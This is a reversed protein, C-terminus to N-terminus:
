RYSTTVFRPVARRRRSPFVADLYGHHLERSRESVPQTMYSVVYFVAVSVFFGWAPPGYSFPLPEAVAPMLQFLLMVGFGCVMSWFAAAESARPWYFAGILPMLFVLGFGVGVSALPIILAQSAPFLAFLVLGVVFVAEFFRGVRALSVNSATKRSERYLDLTFISSGSLVQSDLTSMGAAFTAVVLVVAGVPLFERYLLPTLADTDFGQPIRPFLGMALFGIVAGSFTVVWLSLGSAFVMSVALVKPSRAMYMRQWLHPTLVWGFTWLLMVTFYAGATDGSFALKESSTQTTRSWGESWGGSWGVVLVATVL